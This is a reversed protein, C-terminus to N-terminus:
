ILSLLEDINDIILDAGARKLKEKADAKDPYVSTCGIAIIEISEKARNAAIMDDELDGVYAFKKSKKLRKAAEIISYPDPKSLSVWGKGMKYLRREEEKYDELAVIVDVYPSFGFNKVALEAEKKPRGTAIAISLKKKLNELTLSSVLPREKQYFGNGKYFIPPFGYIKSFNEGLYIEQFIRKVLNERRIDGRHLVLNKYSHSLNDVWDIGKGKPIVKDVPFFRKKKMLINLSSVIKGKKKLINLLEKQSLDDYSFDIGKDEDLTLIYVILAATVNWDNNFGGRGKIIRIDDDTIIKSSYPKLGLLNNLYIEVTKKICARYSLTVDVMVGDMDM